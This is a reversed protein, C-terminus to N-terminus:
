SVLLERYEWQLITYIMNIYVFRVTDTNHQELFESRVHM